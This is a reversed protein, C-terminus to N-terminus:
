EYRGEQNAGYEERQKELFGFSFNQVLPKQALRIPQQLTPSMTTMELESVIGVPLRQRGRGNVRVSANGMKGAVPSTKGVM